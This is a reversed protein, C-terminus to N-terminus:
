NSAVVMGESPVVHRIVLLQPMLGSPPLACSDFTHNASIHVEGSSLISAGTHNITSSSSSASLHVDGDIIFAVNSGAFDAPVSLDGTAM